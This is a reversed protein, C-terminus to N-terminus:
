LWRENICDSSCENICQDTFKNVTTTSEELCAEDCYAKCADELQNGELSGGVPKETKCSSALFLILFFISTLLFIKGFKVM